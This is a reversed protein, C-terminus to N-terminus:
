VFAAKVVMSVILAIVFAILLSWDLLAFIGGIIVFPIIWAAFRQQLSQLRLKSNHM